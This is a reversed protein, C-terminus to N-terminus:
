IVSRHDPRALNVVQIGHDHAIRLAQRTGDPGEGSGDLSGDATWCVVVGAPSALDAGLVQHCDRALLHREAVGLADWRPQYRAAMAYAQPSPRALVAVDPSDGDAWSDAEFRPWPLYLEVRGGAQRAGRYFAQDAGPSAGTRLILGRQALTASLAEISALVDPPTDRSGIGAYPEGARTREAQRPADRDRAAV